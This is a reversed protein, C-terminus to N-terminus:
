AKNVKKELFITDYVERQRFGIKAFFRLADPKAENVLGVISKTRPLLERSMQALCRTGTERGRCEPRVYLGEVYVVDPTDSIVDAKFILKGNEILVYVRGQEVRHACRARFGDADLDLPNVGSEAFALAAHVPVILNLDDRRAIRLDAISEFRNVPTTLELLVERCTHRAPQGGDRYLRWFRDIVKQEGMIMHARTFRQALSAFDKIAPDLRAEVFIAHGILAVGLLKGSEDRCGYFTGRNFDASLSNDRVFGSMVFTHRPRQSFFQLVEETENNALAYTALLPPAALATVSTSVNLQASDPTM